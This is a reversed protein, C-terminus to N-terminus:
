KQDSVLCEESGTKLHREIVVDHRSEKKSWNKIIEKKREKPVTSNEFIGRLSLSRERATGVEMFMFHHNPAATSAAAPRQLGTM